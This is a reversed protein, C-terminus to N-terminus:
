QRTLQPNTPTLYSLHVHVGNWEGDKKVLVVTVRRTDNIPDGEPPQINVTEYYTAVATNEYIEVNEHFTQINIELGASFDRKLNEKRIAQESTSLTNLLGGDVEFRSVTMLNVADANGENLATYLKTMHAWVDEKDGARAEGCILFIVLTATLLQLHGRKLSEYIGM